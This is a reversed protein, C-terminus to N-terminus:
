EELKPEYYLYGDEDMSFEYETVIGFDLLDQKTVPTASSVNGYEDTSIKYIGAELPEYKKLDDKRVFIESIKKAFNNLQLELWSRTLFKM